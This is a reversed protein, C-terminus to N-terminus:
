QKSEKDHSDEQLPHNKPATLAALVSGKLAERYQEDLEPGFGLLSEVEIGDLLALLLAAGFAPPFQLTFEGNDVGETLLEAIRKRWRAFMEWLTTALAGQQERAATAWFELVLRGIHRSGELRECQYDLFRSLRETASTPESLISLADAELLGVANLFVQEFLAEKSQFYNYVSGKAIKAKAAVAEVSAAAYGCDAFVAEAAALIAARRNSIHTM